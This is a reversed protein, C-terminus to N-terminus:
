KLLIKIFSTNSVSGELITNAFLAVSPHYHKALTLLETNLGKTVGAYLPNRYFPDIMNNKNM